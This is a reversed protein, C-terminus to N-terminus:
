KLEAVQNLDYDREARDIARKTQEIEEKLGRLKGIGAKELEGRAKLADTDAKCDALEKELKELRAQSAQDTEKRLAEREIELRM